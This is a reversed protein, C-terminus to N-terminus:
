EPPELRHWDGIMQAPTTCRVAGPLVRDLRATDLSVCPQSGAMADRWLVPRGAARALDEMAVPAPAAVNLIDPVDHEPLRMLAVLVRALDGPAIYSRCPGTGGAFRDLTVPRAGDRLAAALSDAGIVNAVRLIVHRPGDRPLDAIVREMDLKAAGYANAPAPHQTERLRTGPGYIAASSLHIVRGAGCARALHWAARALEGNQALTRADGGTRGWLAVVAGCRPLDPDECGHSWIIDAPPRRACWIPAIEPDAHWAARLFTGIQGNAGTVLCRVPGSTTTVASGRGEIPVGNKKEM